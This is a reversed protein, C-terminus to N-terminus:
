LAPNLGFSDSRLNQSSELVTALNLQGSCIAPASGPPGINLKPLALKLYLRMSGIGPIPLINEVLDSTSNNLDM